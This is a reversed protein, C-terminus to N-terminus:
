DINWYNEPDGEFGNDITHDNLGNRGNYKENNSYNNSNDHDFEIYDENSYDIVGIVYYEIYLNKDLKVEVSVNIIENSKMQYLDDIKIYLRKKSIKDFYRLYNDRFEWFIDDPYFSTGILLININFIKEFLDVNGVTCDEVNFFSDDNENKRYRLPTKLYKFNLNELWKDFIIETISNQDDGWPYSVDRVWKMTASIIEGDIIKKVYYYVSSDYRYYFDKNFRIKKKDTDNGCGCLLALEYLNITCLYVNLYNEDNTVVIYSRINKLSLSSVLNDVEDKDFIKEIHYDDDDREHRYPHNEVIIYYKDAEM